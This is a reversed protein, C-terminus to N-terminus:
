RNARKSPIGDIIDQIIIEDLTEEPENEMKIKRESNKNEDWEFNAKM